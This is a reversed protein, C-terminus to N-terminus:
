SGRQGSVRAGVVAAPNVAGFGLLPALVHAAFPMAMAGIHDGINGWELWAKDYPKQVLKAYERQDASPPVTFGVRGAADVKVGDMTGFLTTGVGLVVSDYPSSFAYVKDRVHRLAASLDYGPSLAPALLLVAQVKVDPPLKELAWVAIGNGGSHATLYIKIRPDARFRWTIADAVKQAQADNRARAHLANIGPDNCTWDYIEADADVGGERLGRLLYGDIRLKGGVGPLHLLYPRPAPAEVVAAQRKADVARSSAACGALGAAIVVVFLWKWYRLSMEM